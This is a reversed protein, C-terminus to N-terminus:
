SRRDKLAKRRKFWALLAVIGRAIGYDNGRGGAALDPNVVPAPRPNPEGPLRKRQPSM